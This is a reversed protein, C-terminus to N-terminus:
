IENDHMWSIKEEKDQYKEGTKDALKHYNRSSAIEM